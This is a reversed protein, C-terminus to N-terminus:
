PKQEIIYEVSDTDLSINHYFDPLGAPYLALKSSPAGATTLSEYDGMAYGLENDISYLSM